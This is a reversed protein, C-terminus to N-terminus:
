QAGGTFGRPGINGIWQLARFLFVARTHARRAAKVDRALAQHEAEIARSRSEIDAVLQPERDAFKVRFTEFNQLFRGIDGEDGSREVEEFDRQFQELEERLGKAEEAAPEVTAAFSRVSDKFAAMREGIEDIRRDLYVIHAHLLRLAIVGSATGGVLFAFLLVSIRALADWFESNM